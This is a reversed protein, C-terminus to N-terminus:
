KRGEISLVFFNHYIVFIMSKILPEKSIKPMIHAKRTKTNGTISQIADLNIFGYGM